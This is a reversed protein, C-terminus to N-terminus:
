LGLLCEFMRKCSGPFKELIGSVLCVLSSSVGRRASASMNLWLPWGASEVDDQLTLSPPTLDPARSCQATVSHWPRIWTWAQCRDSPVPRAPHPRSPRTKGPLGNPQAHSFSACTCRLMSLGGQIRLRGWRLSFVIFPGQARCCSVNPQVKTSDCDEALKERLDM